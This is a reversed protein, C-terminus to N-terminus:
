RKNICERWRHRRMKKFFDLLQYWEPTGECSMNEQSEVCVARRKRSFSFSQPEVIEWDSDSVLAESTVDLSSPADPAGTVVPVGSSVEPM